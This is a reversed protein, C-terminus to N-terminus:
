EILIKANTPVRLINRLKQKIRIQVKGSQLEKLADNAIWKATKSDQKQIKKALEIAKKNLALNRKGVQRLAWNVAKKVFNREDTSYEEIM